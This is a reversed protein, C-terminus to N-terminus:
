FLFIAVTLMTICSFVAYGAIVVLGLWGNLPHNEDMKIEGLIEKGGCM